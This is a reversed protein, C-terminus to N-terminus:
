RLPMVILAVGIGMSRCTIRSGTARHLGQREGHCAPEHAMKCSDHLGYVFLTRVVMMDEQLMM